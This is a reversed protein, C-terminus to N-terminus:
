YMALSHVARIAGLEHGGLALFSRSIVNNSTQCAHLTGKCYVDIPHQQPISTANDPGHSATVLANRFFGPLRGRHLLSVRTPPSTAISEFSTDTQMEADLSAM